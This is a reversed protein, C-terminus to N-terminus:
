ESPLGAIPEWTEGADRSRWLAPGKTDLTGVYVVPTAAGAHGSAPDFQVLGVADAKLGALRRWTKGRDASKWLGDHSSGLLLIGGDNPDVQLREGMSRGDQNGGLKFPLDVRRWNAGQDDSALLAAPSYVAEQARVAAIYVRQPDNPDVALSLAGMLQNDDRGLDDNLPIWRKAVVDWRYAGGIDTRAYVLGRVKPHYVLGSVFGGGGFPASTWQYSPPTPAADAVCLGTLLWAALWLGGLVRKM